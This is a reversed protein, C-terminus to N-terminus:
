VEIFDAKESGCVPCVWDEPLNAFKVSNLAEDYIYGCVVCQFRKHIGRPQPKELKSKDIYTPANKPASAKRVERYYGYTIPSKTDDLVVSQVLDAIFIFHTGEDITEIVRCEFYAISDNLVIPVGTEGYIVSMGEMKNVEKGSKYGFRTFIDPSTDQHLVSVSFAGTDRIISATFNNKSCSAAFRPPEATVQFVTNSIFGNGHDRNGSSVIYLGYSIKYLADFSIM